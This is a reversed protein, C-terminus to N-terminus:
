QYVIRADRKRWVSPSRNDGSRLSVVSTRTSTTYRISRRSASRWSASSARCDSFFLLLVKPLFIYLIESHFCCSNGTATWFPWDTVYLCLDRTIIVRKNLTNNQLVQQQLCFLSYDLLNPLNKIYQKCHLKVQFRSIHQKEGSCSAQVLSMLSNFHCRFNLLSLSWWTVSLIILVSTRFWRNFSSM